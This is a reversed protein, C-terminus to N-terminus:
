WDFVELGKITNADSDLCIYQCDMAKAYILLDCFAKSYEKNENHSCAFLFFGYEFPAVSFTDEKKLLENDKETIHATSLTLTKSTM